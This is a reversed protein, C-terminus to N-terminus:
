LSTHSHVIKFVSSQCASFLFTTCQTNNRGLSVEMEASNNESAM